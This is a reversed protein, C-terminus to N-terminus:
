HKSFLIQDVLFHKDCEFWILKEKIKAKCTM